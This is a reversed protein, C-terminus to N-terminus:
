KKKLNERWQRSENYKRFHTKKELLSVDKPYKKLQTLTILVLARM